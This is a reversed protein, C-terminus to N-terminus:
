SHDLQFLYWSLYISQTKRRRLEIKRDEKSPNLFRYDLKHNVSEKFIENEIRQIKFRDCESFIKQDWKM